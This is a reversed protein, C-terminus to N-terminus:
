GLIRGAMNALIAVGDLLADQRFSM